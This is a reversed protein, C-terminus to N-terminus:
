KIGFGALVYINSICLKYVCKISLMKWHTQAWKKPICNFTKVIAIHYYCNLMLGENACM